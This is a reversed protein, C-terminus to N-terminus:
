KVTPLSHSEQDLDLLVDLVRPFHEQLTDCSWDSRHIKKPLPYQQSPAQSRQLHTRRSPSDLALCPLAFHTTYSLCDIAYVLTEEEHIQCMFLERNPARM